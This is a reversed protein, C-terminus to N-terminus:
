LAGPGVGPSPKHGVHCWTWICTQTQAGWPVLDMHLASNTGGMASYGVGPTPKHGVHCQIQGWAQTQAGCPM